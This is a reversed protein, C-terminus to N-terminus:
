ESIASTQRGVGFSGTSSHSRVCTRNSRPGIRPDKSTRLEGHILAGSSSSRFWSVRSIMQAHETCDAFVARASPAM